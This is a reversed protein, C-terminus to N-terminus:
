TAVRYHGRPLELAMTAQQVRRGQPYIENLRRTDFGYAATTQLAFNSLHVIAMNIAQLADLITRDERLGWDLDNSIDAFVEGIIPPDGHAYDSPVGYLANYEATYKKGKADTKVDEENTNALHMPLFGVDGSFETLEPNAKKWEEYTADLASTVNPNPHELRALRKYKRAYNSELQESAEKSNTLFYKAKQQFEYMSRTLILMARTNSDSALSAVASGTQTLSLGLFIQWRSKARDEKPTDAPKESEIRAIDRVIQKVVRIWKRTVSGADALTAEYSKAPM